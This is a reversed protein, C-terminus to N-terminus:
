DGLQFKVPVPNRIIDLVPSTKQVYNYLAEIAM